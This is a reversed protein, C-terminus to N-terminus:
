KKGRKYKYPDMKSPPLIDFKKLKMHLTTRQLGISAASKTIDNAHAALARSIVASEVQSMVRHYGEVGMRELLDSILGDSDKM